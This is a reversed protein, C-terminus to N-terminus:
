SMTRGFCSIWRDIRMMIGITVRMMSSTMKVIMMIVIVMLGFFTVNGEVIQGLFGICFRCLNDLPLDRHTSGSHDYRLVV